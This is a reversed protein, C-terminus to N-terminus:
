RGLAGYCCIGVQREHADGLFRDRTASTTHIDVLLIEIQRLLPILVSVLDGGLRRNGVDAQRSYGLPLMHDHAAVIVQVDDELGM